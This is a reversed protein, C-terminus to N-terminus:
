TPPGPGGGNEPAHGYNADTFGRIADLDATELFLLRRWATVAIPQDDPFPQGGWPSLIFKFRGGAGTQNQSVVYDALTDVAVADLQDPQYWIVIGGHELNHILQVQDQPTTYVGWNAPTDFHCGSTPPLSSYSGPTCQPIHSGGDDAQLEGAYPNPGSAAIVAIVVAVLGVVLVGVIGVIRMDLGGSRPADLRRGLAETSARQRRQVGSTRRRKAM